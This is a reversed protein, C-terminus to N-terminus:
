LHSAGRQGKIPKPVDASYDSIFNDFRMGSMTGIGDYSTVTQRRKEMLSRKIGYMRYSSLTTGSQTLDISEFSSFIGAASACYQIDTTNKVKMRLFSARPDLYQNSLLGGINFRVVDGCKFAAGINQPTQRIIFSQAMPSDSMNKSVFRDSMSMKIDDM